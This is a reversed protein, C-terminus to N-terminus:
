FPTSCRNKLKLSVIQVMIYNKPLLHRTNPKRKSFDVCQPHWGPNCRNEPTYYAKLKSPFNPTRESCLTIASHLVPIQLSILDYVAPLLSLKHSWNSRRNAVGEMFKIDKAFNVPSLINKPFAAREWCRLHDKRSNL